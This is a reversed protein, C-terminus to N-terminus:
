HCQWVVGLIGHLLKFPCVIDEIKHCPLIGLTNQWTFLCAESSDTHWTYTHPYASFIELLISCFCNLATVGRRLSVQMHLLFSSKVKWMMGKQKFKKGYCCYHTVCGSQELRKVLILENLGWLLMHPWPLHPHKCPECSSGLEQSWAQCVTLRWLHTNIKNTPNTM